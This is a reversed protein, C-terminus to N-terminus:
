ALFLVFWCWYYVITRKTRIMRVLFKSSVDLAILYQKTTQKITNLAVKLLIETIDKRDTKNTFSVDSFGGFQRLDSIFKIVYHHAGRGSEFECCWNHNVSIAYTTTFAVIMRDRGRRDWTYDSAPCVIFYWFSFLVFLSRCFVLSFVSSQAVCVGCFM